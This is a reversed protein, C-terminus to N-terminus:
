KVFGKAIYEILCESLLLEIVKSQVDQTEIFDCIVTKKEEVTKAFFMERTFENCSESIIKIARNLMVAADQESFETM